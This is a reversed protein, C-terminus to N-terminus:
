LELIKHLRSQFDKYWAIKEEADKQEKEKAKKNNAAASIKAGLGALEKEKTEM